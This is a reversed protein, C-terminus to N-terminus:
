SASTKVPIRRDPGGDKALIWHQDAVAHYLRLDADGTVESASFARGGHTLCRASFIEIGRVLEAADIETASAAIYVGQGTNIRAQSDFIVIAVEPRSLLNQSHRREPASVWFFERYDHHAFYVPTTWPRGTPDATGLVLYQNADIVERALATANTPGDAM